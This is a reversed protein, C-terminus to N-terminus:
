NGLSSSRHVVKNHKFMHGLYYEIERGCVGLCRLLGLFGLDLKAM